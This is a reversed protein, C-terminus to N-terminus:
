GGPGVPRRNASDTEVAEAKAEACAPRNREAHAEISNILDEIASHAAITKAVADSWWEGIEYRAAVRTDAYQKPRLDLIRCYIAEAKEMLAGLKKITTQPQGPM